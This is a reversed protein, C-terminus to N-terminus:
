QWGTPEYGKERLCRDVFNTYTATPTSRRGIIAGLFGIVAGSVAGIAVGIGAGGSIAGGGAGDAAGVGAGVATETALDGTAGTRRDAGAKKAPERV